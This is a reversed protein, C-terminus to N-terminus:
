LNSNRLVEEIDDISLGLRNLKYILVYISEAYQVERCWPYKQEINIKYVKKFWKREVTVWVCSM